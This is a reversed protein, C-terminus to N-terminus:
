LIDAPYYLELENKFVAFQPRHVRFSEFDKSLLLHSEKLIGYAEYREENNLEETFYLLPLSVVSDNVSQSKGFVYSGLELLTHLQFKDEEKSALLQFSIMGSTLFSSLQPPSAPPYVFSLYFMPISINKTLNLWKTELNKLDDTFTTSFLSVHLITEPLLILKRSFNSQLFLKQVRVLTAHETSCRNFFQVISALPFTKNNSELKPSLLNRSVGSLQVNQNPESSPYVFYLYYFSIMFTIWFLVRRLTRRTEQVTPQQSPYLRPM